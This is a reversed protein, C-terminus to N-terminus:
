LTDTLPQRFWSSIDTVITLLYLVIIPKTIFTKNTTIITKSVFTNTITTTIMYVKIIMNVVPFYGIAQNVERNLPFLSKLDPSLFSM